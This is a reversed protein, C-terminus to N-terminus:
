TIVYLSSTDYVLSQKGKLSNFFYIIPLLPPLKSTNLFLCWVFGKISSPVHVLTCETCRDGLSSFLSQSLIKFSYLIRNCRGRERDKKHPFKFCM